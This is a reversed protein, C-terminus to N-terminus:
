KKRKRERDKARIEEIHDLRYQKLREKNEERYKKAKEAKMRAVEEPHEAKWKKREQAAIHRQRTAEGRQKREEKWKLYDEVSMNHKQANIEDKHNEYWLDRVQKMHEYYKEDKIVPNDIWYQRMKEGGRICGELMKKKSEDTYIDKLGKNWPMNGTKFSHEANKAKTIPNNNNEKATVWRLNEKINSAKNGDIHDVFPKGESNPIFADAVLRHILFSQGDFYM